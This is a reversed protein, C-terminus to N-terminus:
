FPSGQARKRRLDNAAWAKDVFFATVLSMVKAREELVLVYGEAELWFYYRTAGSGEVYRWKSLGPASGDLMVPIWSICRARDYDPLRNAGKGRTVVHWFGEEYPSGVCRTDFVVPKGAVEARPTAKFTSLFSAYLRAEVQNWSGTMNIQAPLPM